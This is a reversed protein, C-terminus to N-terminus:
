TKRAFGVAADLDFPPWGTQNRFWTQQRKAYQRTAIATAAIAADPTIEGRAAALLPGVGLARMVPLDASLGRAGLAAVEAAAGDAIM